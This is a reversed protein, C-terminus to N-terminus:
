RASKPLPLSRLEATTAGRIRQEVDDQDRYRMAQLRATDADSLTPPAAVISAV